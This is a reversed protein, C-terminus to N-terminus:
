KRGDATGDLLHQLEDQLKRLRALAVAQGTKEPEYGEWAAGKLEADAALSRVLARAHRIEEMLEAIREARTPKIM